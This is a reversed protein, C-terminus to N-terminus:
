YLHAAAVMLFTVPISLILNFRAFIKIQQRAQDKVAADGPVQGLVIQLNPWIIFHVFAWMALGGLIGLWLLLTRSPPIYVETPFVFSGLLYGSSFLLLVGSLLTLHSAHRFSHAVRPVVLTMLSRRGADDASQLASLQIFNVFWILGVWLIGAFVHVWRLLFSIFGLADAGEIALWLVAIVATLGAGTLLARAPTDTMAKM